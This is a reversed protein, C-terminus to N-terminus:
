SVRSCRVQPQGDVKCFFSGLVGSKILMQSGNHPDESISNDDTQQWVAGDKIRFVWRGDANRRAGDLVVSLHDFGEGNAPAAKAFVNLTPLRFGFAQKRVAAVQAQDVVVVDGKAEAADLAGAAKDYCALRDADATIKRCDALARVLPSGPPPAPVAANATAGLFALAILSLRPPKMLDSM